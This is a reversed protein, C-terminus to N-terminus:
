EAVFAGRRRQEAEQRFADRFNSEPTPTAPAEHPESITPAAVDTTTTTSDPTTGTRVVQALTDGQALAYATGIAAELRGTDGAVAASEIAEQVAPYKQLAAELDGDYNSYHPNQSRVNTLAVNIAADMPLQQMKSIQQQFQNQQEQIRLENTYVSAQYPDIDKWTSLARQLLMGNGQQRAYEAMSYPNELTQQDFWDVTAQDMQPQQQYQNQQQIGDKIQSLEDVMRRLDGVENSQEGSKRQLHVAGQLAKDVDGNYKQLFAAVAPDQSDTVPTDDAQVEEVPEEQLQDEVQSAFRGAEDRPQEDAQVVEPTGEDPASQRVDIRDRGFGIGELKEEVANSGGHIEAESV